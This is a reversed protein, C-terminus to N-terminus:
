AYIRAVKAHGERVVERRQEGDTAPNVGDFLISAGVV